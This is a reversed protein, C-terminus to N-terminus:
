PRALGRPLCISDLVVLVPLSEFRFLRGHYRRRAHTSSENSGQAGRNVLYSTNNEPFTSDDEGPRLLWRGSRQRAFPKQLTYTQQSGSTRQARSLVLM